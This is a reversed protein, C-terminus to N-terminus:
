DKIRNRHIWVDDQVKGGVDEGTGHLVFEFHMHTHNAVTIRGYGFNGKIFHATWENVLDFGHDLKAGATGVTIHIPGGKSCQGKYLGDCTRQYEHYHGALVLDVQHAVLLDEFEVRMARGVLYQRWWTGSGEAEYLPRHSELVVWPTKTRDVTSLDHELFEYQPSGPSLDHESSVIITHM